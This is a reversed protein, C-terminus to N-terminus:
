TKTLFVIKQNDTKSVSKYFDVFEGYTEPAFEGKFMKLKRIYLIGKEDIKFSTEYEGFRSKVSVPEPLSEPYIGEPLQYHISDLDTFGNTTVINSKRSDLKEPVYNMKNMLNPSIFMRKGSISAYRKLNLDALVVASPIKGKNNKMSFSVVDFSPIEINKQLWKKQNDFQDDLLTHLGGNEYQIGSYTTKVKVKADGFETISVEATRSQINENETYVPTKAIVAGDDTILLANRNGTFTGAYGFPATQSTCELWLTDSGNPVAVIAHNFQSSPFDLTLDAEGKGARILVYHAKVGAVELMSVMYNSLAKCDGYGTKDVVSAEFPQFGGIGLQISVYRTKSQLYEYLVKAKEERTSLGNTLELVKRKTEEPLLNRGKNLQSIWKGFDQWSDMTGAYKDFEFKGPAIMVQPIIEQIDPGHREISIPKLNNVTWTIKQLSQPLQTKVPTIELNLIKYRPILSTPFVLEYSANQVSVKEGPIPVFPPITFLFKFEIEYEFEVTYPYTSHELQAAKLRNDSYLSFGDFALQDYIESSKLKKVVKGTADYLTGKFSNVKRHKDYGIIEAAHESGHENLITVVKLVHWKAQNQAIITFTEQHDRIVVHAGKKLEEPIETVPYKIDAAM